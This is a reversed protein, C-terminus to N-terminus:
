LCRIECDLADVLTEIELKKRAEHVWEDCLVRPWGKLSVVEEVAKDLKSLRLNQSVRAIVSEMDNDVPAGAKDLLFFGFFKASIHGLIGANPPLLSSTSLDKQLLSWRNYLQENSLVLQQSALKDLQTVVVDLLQPGNKKCCKSPKGPLIDCLTKLRSLEADITISAQDGAHLKNKLLTTLLALQSLVESKMVLKDVQDIAETLGQVSENLAELKSLRGQRENDLKQSLIKNFEEVQKISLLAVENSQKALLAQENAKLAAALEQSSHAELQAKFQNFESLFQQTLEIERDKARLEYSKHLEESATGYQFAVSEAVENQVNEDLVKLAGSLKGYADHVANYTDEPLLLSQENISSVASNLETVMDKAKKSESHLEVHPLRLKILSDDEVRVDTTAPLAAVAGTTIESGAGRNPVRDVKTGLEGFKQKLEDLSMRSAQFKEDRYSEYLEVLTEALPVNDCFLEGFQDNNLSLAVGGIYFGVTVLGM